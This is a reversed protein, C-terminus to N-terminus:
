MQSNRNGWLEGHAFPFPGNDYASCLILPSGSGNETSPITFYPFAGDWAAGSVFCLLSHSLMLSVFLARRSPLWHVEFVAGFPTLERPKM